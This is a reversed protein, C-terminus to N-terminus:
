RIIEVRKSVTNTGDSLRVVYAGATLANTNLHVAQNDTTSSEPMVRGLLDLLQVTIPKAVVEAYQVVIEQGNSAPNPFINTISLGTPQSSSAVSNQIITKGEITDVVSYAPASNDPVLQIEVVRSTDPVSWVFFTDTVDGLVNPVTFGGSADALYYQLKASTVGNKTWVITDSSGGQIVQAPQPKLITVSAANAITFNSDQISILSPYNAAVLKFKGQTTASDPVTWNVPSSTSNSIYRWTTGNDLSYYAIAGGVLNTSTYYITAVNGPNYTKSDVFSNFIALTPPPPQLTDIDKKLIAANAVFYTGGGDDELFCVLKMNTAKQYTTDSVDISHNWTVHKTAGSSAGAPFAVLTGTDQTTVIWVVDNAVVPAKSNVCSETFAVNDQTIAFRVILSDSFSQNATVTLDVHINYSSSSTKDLTAYNLTASAEPTTGADAEIADSWDSSSGGDATPDIRSGTSNFVERDVGATYIPQSSSGSLRADVLGGYEDLNYPTLQLNGLFYNLHIVKSGEQSVTTKVASEFATQNSLNCPSSSGSFTEFLAQRQQAFAHQTLFVSLIFVFSALRFFSKM